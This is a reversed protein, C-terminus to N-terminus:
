HYVLVKHSHPINNEVYRVVYFGNPFQSCDISTEDNSSTQQHITEGLENVFVIPTNQTAKINLINSVPNPFISYTYTNIKDIVSTVYEDYKLVVIRYKDHSNFGLAYCNGNKSCIVKRIIVSTTSDFDSEWNINWAFGGNLTKLVKSNCEKFGVMSNKMAMSESQCGSYGTVVQWTKGYDLSNINGDHTCCIITDGFVQVTYSIIPPTVITNWLNGNDVTHLFRGKSGSYWSGDTNLLLYNPRLSDIIKENWTKGDDTSIKLFGAGRGLIIGGIGVTTSDKGSLVNIYFKGSTDTFLTDWSQGGNITKLLLSYKINNFTSQLVVYGKTPTVFHVKLLADENNFNHLQLWSKGEDVSRLLLGSETTLFLTTDNVTQFDYPLGYYDIQSTAKWTQSNSTNCILIFLLMQVIYHKM